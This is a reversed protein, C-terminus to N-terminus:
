EPKEKPNPNPTVDTPVEGPLVGLKGDPVPCVPTSFSLAIALAIATMM